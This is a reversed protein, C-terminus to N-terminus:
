GKLILTKKGYSQWTGSVASIPGRDLPKIHLLDPLEDPHTYERRGSVVPIKCGVKRLFREVVAKLRPMCAAVIGLYM